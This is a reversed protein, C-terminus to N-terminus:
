DGAGAKTKFTCRPYRLLSGEDRTGWLAFSTPRRWRAPRWDSTLSARRRRHSGGSLLRGCLYPMPLPLRDLLARQFETSSLARRVDEESYEESSYPLWRTQRSRVQEEPETGSGAQATKDGTTTTTDEVPGPGPQIAPGHHGRRQRSTAGPSVTPAMLRRKTSAAGVGIGTLRPMTRYLTCRGASHHVVLLPLAVQVYVYAGHSQTCRM